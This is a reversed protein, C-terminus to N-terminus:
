PNFCDILIARCPAGDCGGLNIPAANLFYVGQTVNTLDIGELLTIDAGLMVLHVKKPAEVPGVSQAENGFLLVNNGEKQKRAFVIAGGESLFADGKILIRQVAEEDTRMIEDIIEQAKSATIEGTTEYVFAKGVYTSLSVEDITKGDNIFHFPADVHTGNHACMSLETLNCVDGRDISLCTKKVPSADGPFVRCSFVEQSIDIIRM